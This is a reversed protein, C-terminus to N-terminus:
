ILAAMNRENQSRPDHEHAAPYVVGSKGLWCICDCKWCLFAIIAVALLFPLMMQIGGPDPM